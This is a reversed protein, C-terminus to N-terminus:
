QLHSIMDMTLNDRLAYLLNEKKQPGLVQLRVKPAATASLWNLSKEILSSFTVALVLRAPLKQLRIQSGDPQQSNFIAYLKSQLIGIYSVDYKYRRSM